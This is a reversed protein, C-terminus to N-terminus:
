NCCTSGCCSKPKVARVFASMIKGDVQPAIADIDINQGTLFERADEVAYLRTPELEIQEFGASKLKSRYEDEEMAGAICGVWALVSQRIEAPVEGRTAVLLLETVDWFWYGTGTANGGYDKDWECCTKYTFGWAEIVDM